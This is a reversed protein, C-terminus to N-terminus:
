LDNRWESSPCVCQALLEQQLKKHKHKKKQHVLLKAEKSITSKHDRHHKKTLVFFSGGSSTYSTVVNNVNSATIPVGASNYTQVVSNVVVNKFTASQAAQSATQGAAASNYSFGVSFSVGVIAGGSSAPASSSSSEDPEETSTPEETSSTTEPKASTTAAVSAATSTPTVSSAVRAGHVFGSSVSQHVQFIQAAPVGGTGGKLVFILEPSTSADSSSLKTRLSIDLVTDPAEETAAEIMTAGSLLASSMEQIQAFGLPRVLSDGSPVTNMDFYQTTAFVLAGETEGGGDLELGSTVTIPMGEISM